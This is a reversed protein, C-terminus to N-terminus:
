QAARGARAALMIERIEAPTVERTLLIVALYVLGLLSDKALLMLGEGPLAISVLWLAGCALAIRVVSAGPVFAGFRRALVISAAVLGLTWAAASGAAAGVPGHSEVLSRTFVLGLVLTLSMILLSTGARGQATILMTAVILLGYVFYGPALVQLPGSVVSLPDGFETLARAANGHFVLAYTEHATSGLVVCVPAMLLLVLRFGQRLTARQRAPDQASAAVLPFLVWVLASIISWPIQAIKLNGTYYGALRDAIDPDSDALAKVALQDLSMLYFTVLTVALVKGQFLLLQTLDLAATAGGRAPRIWLMAVVMMVFSAAVFGLLAGLAGYGLAAGTLVLAMRLISSGMDIWSQERFRRTGNCYGQYLCRLAYFIPIAGGVRLITEYAPDNLGHRAIAPVALQFLVVFALVLPLQMRACARFVGGPDDPHSAVMQSVLQLTGQAFMMNLPNIVVLATGYIGFAAIGAGGMSWDLIASLFFFLGFGAITHVLKALMLLLGGRVVEARQGGVSM